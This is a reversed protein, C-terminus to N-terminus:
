LQALPRKAPCCEALLIADVELISAWGWGLRQFIRECGRQHNASQIPARQECSKEASGITATSPALLTFAVSVRSSVGPFALSILNKGCYKAPIPSPAIIVKM